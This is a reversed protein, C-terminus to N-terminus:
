SLNRNSKFRLSEALRTGLFIQSLQRRQIHHRIIMDMMGTTTHIMQTALIAPIITIMTMTTAMTLVIRDHLHNMFPIRYPITRVIRFRHNLRNMFQIQYRTIRAIQFPHNLRSMCRIQYRTIHVNPVIRSAAAEEAVALTQRTTLMRFQTIPVSKAIACWASAFCATTHLRQHVM